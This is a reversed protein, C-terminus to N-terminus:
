YQPMIIGKWWDKDFNNEFFTIINKINILLDAENKIINTYLFEAAKLGSYVECNDMLYIIKYNPKAYSYDYITTNLVM